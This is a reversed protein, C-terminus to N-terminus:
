CCHRLICTQHGCNGRLTHQCNDLNNSRFPLETSHIPFWYLNNILIIAIWRQFIIHNESHAFAITDLGNRLGRPGVIQFVSHVISHETCSLVTRRFFSVRGTLIKFSVAAPMTRSPSALIPQYPRYRFQEMTSVPTGVLM